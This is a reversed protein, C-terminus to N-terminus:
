VPLELVSLRSQTSVSQHIYPNVSPSVFPSIALDVLSIISIMFIYSRFAWMVANYFLLYILSQRNMFFSRNAPKNIHKKLRSINKYTLIYNRLTQNNLLLVKKLLM